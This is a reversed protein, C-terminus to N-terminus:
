RDVAQLKTVRGYTWLNRVSVCFSFWKTRRLTDAKLPPCCQADRASQALRTHKAVRRINAAAFQRAVVR